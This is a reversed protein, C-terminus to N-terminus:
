RERAGRMLLLAIYGACILGLAPYARSVLADFGMCGIITMGGLSMLRVDFARLGLEAGREELALLASALTSLVALWMVLITAYYGAKGLHAAMVVCPMAAHACIAWCRRVCYLAALLMALMLAGTLLGVANASRRSDARRGAACIVGCAAAANFGAYAAASLFAGSMAQTQQMPAPAPPVHALLAFYGLMAIVTLGGLAGLMGLGRAAILAALAATMLMGIQRAGHVYLALAGLEGGAAIMAAGVTLMLLAMLMGSGASHGVSQMMLGPLGAAGMRMALLMLGRTMCGILVAAVAAGMWGAAGFRGFFAAIERGSAFGAGAIAAAIAAAAGLKGRM